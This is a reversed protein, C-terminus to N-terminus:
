CPTLNPGRAVKAQWIATNVCRMWQRQKLPIVQVQDWRHFDRNASVQGSRTDGYGLCSALTADHKGRDGGQDALDGRKRMQKVTQAMAAQCELAAIQYEDNDVFGPESKRRVVYSAARDSTRNMDSRVFPWHFPHETHRPGMSM